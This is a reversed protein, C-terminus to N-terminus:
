SKTFKQACRRKRRPVQIYFDKFGPRQERKVGSLELCFRFRSIGAQPGDTGTQSEGSPRPRASAAPAGRSDRTVPHTARPARCAPVGWSTPCLAPPVLSQHSGSPSLRGGGRGRYLEHCTIAPLWPALRACLGTGPFSTGGGARPTGTWTRSGPPDPAFCTSGFLSQM